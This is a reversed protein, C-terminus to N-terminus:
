SELINSVEILFSSVEDKGNFSISLNSAFLLLYFGCILFVVDQRFTLICHM